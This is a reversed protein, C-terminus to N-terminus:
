LDAKLTFRIKEDENREIADVRTKSFLPDSKFSIIQEALYRFNETEGVITIVKEKENYEYGVLVVQPVMLTELLTLLTKPDIFQSLDAGLFTLRNSFDTVRDVRVGHLKDADLALTTELQSIKVDFTHIYWRLGGWGVLTLVLIIISVPFGSASFPRKESKETQSAMSQSLNVGAM